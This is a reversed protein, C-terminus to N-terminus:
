RRRGGLAATGLMIAAAFMALAVLLMVTVVALVLGAALPLVVVAAVVAVFAMSWHEARNAFAFGSTTIALVVAVALASAGALFLWRGFGALTVAWAVHRFVWITADASVGETLLWWHTPVAVALGAGATRTARRLRDDVPVPLAEHAVSSELLEGVSSM